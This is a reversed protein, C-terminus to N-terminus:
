TRGFGVEDGAELVRVDHREVVVPALRAARVEDHSEEAAAGQLLADDPM